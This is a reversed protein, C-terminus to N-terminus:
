EDFLCPELFILLTLLFSKFKELEKRKNKIFKLLTKEDEIFFMQINKNSTSGILGLKYLRKLIKYATTRELNAFRAIVSAPNTGIKYLSIFIKYENEDLGLKQFVEELM